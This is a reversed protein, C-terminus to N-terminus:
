KDLILEGDWVAIKGLSTNSYCGVEVMRVWDFRSTPYAPNGRMYRQLCRYFKNGRAPRVDSVVIWDHFLALMADHIFLPHYRRLTRNVFAGSEDGMEGHTGLILRYAKENLVPAIQPLLLREYGQIDIDVQRPHHHTVRGCASFLGDSLPM